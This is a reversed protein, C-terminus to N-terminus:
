KEEVTWGASELNKTTEKLSLKTVNDGEVPLLEAEIVEKLTDKNTTIVIKEVFQGDKEESSYTVGEIDGYSASAEEVAAQIMEIQEDSYGDLSMSSEQTIKTIEDGKADFIMQIKAGNQDISCTAASKVEKGGCATIGFVLCCVALVSIIKKKM